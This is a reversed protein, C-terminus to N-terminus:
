RIGGERFVQLITCSKITCKSISNKDAITGGAKDIIIFSNAQPGSQATYGANPVKAGGTLLMEGM